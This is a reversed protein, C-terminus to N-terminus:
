SRLARYVSARGIGLQKAIDTAGIGARALEKVREGEISKPRGKYVGRSKAKEIGDRQREGRIDAEFEAFSALINLLLKGDSRTTDIAGQQLCQFTVSKAALQDVIQRLDMISRALRDLRTVVLTDGERVFGLADHLAVRDKTSTGSKKEAFVRECGASRLLEEQVELSQGVSSVRAYGVLM